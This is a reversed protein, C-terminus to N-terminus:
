PIRTLGPEVSLLPWWSCGSGAKQTTLLYVDRGNLLWAQMNLMGPKGSSIQSDLSRQTGLMLTSEQVEHVGSGAQQSGMTDGGFPLVEYFFHQKKYRQHSSTPPEQSIPNFISWQDRSAGPVFCPYILSLRHVWIRNSPDNTHDGFSFMNGQHSILLLSSNRWTQNEFLFSSNIFIHSYQWDLFSFM